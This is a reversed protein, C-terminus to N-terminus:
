QFFYSHQRQTHTFSCPAIVMSGAKLKISKNQYYFDTEGGEEMDNLYILFLLVQHLAKNEVLQLFIDSHWYGYNGQGQEYRQPALNFLYKILNCLNPKDLEEFNDVTM